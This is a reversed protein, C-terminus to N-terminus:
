PSTSGQVPKRGSGAMGLMGALGSLLLVLTAPLPVTSPPEHCHDQGGWPGDGDRHEDLWSLGPPFGAHFHNGSDRTFHDYWHQSDLGPASPARGGMPGHGADPDFPDSIAAQGPFRELLHNTGGDCLPCFSPAHSGDNHDGAPADFGGTDAGVLNASANAMVSLMSALCLTRLITITTTNM